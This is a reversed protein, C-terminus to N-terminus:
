GLASSVKVGVKMTGLWDGGKGQKWHYVARSHAQPFVQSCVSFSPFTLQQTSTVDWYRFCPDWYRRHQIQFGMRQFASGPAEGASFHAPHLLSASFIFPFLCLSIIKFGGTLNQPKEWFDMMEKVLTTLCPFRSFQFISFSISAGLDRVGSDYMASQCRSRRLYM